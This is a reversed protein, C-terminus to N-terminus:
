NKILVLASFTSSSSFCCFRHRGDVEADRRSPVAVDDAPAAADDAADLALEADVHAHRPAAAGVDDGDDAVFVVDLGGAAGQLVLELEHHTLRRQPLVLQGHGLVLVSREDTGAAGRQAANLLLAQCVDHHGRAARGGALLHRDLARLLRALLRLVLDLGHQALLDLHRLPVPLARHGHLLNRPCVQALRHRPRQEERVVLLVVAARRDLREQLVQVRRLLRQVDADERHRVVGNRVGHQVAVRPTHRHPHDAVVVLCLAASRVNQLERVGADLAPHVLLRLMHVVLVADKVVLHEHVAGEVPCNLCLVRVVFVHHDGAVLVKHM